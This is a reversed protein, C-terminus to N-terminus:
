GVGKRYNIANRDDNIKFKSCLYNKKSAGRRTGELHAKGGNASGRIRPPLWSSDPSPAFKGKKLAAHM